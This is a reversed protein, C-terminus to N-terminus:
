LELLATVLQWLATSRVFAVLQRIHHLLQDHTRPTPSRETQVYRPPGPLYLLGLKILSQQASIAVYVDIIWTNSPIKDM